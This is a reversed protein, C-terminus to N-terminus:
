DQRPSNAKERGLLIYLLLGVAAFLAGGPGIYLLGKHEAIIGGLLAGGGIGLNYLGSFMSMAVDTADSAENLVGVQMQLGFCMIAAGWVLVLGYFAWQELLTPMLALCLMLAVLTGVMLGRPFRQSLRSFLWSGILGAAGFLLLVLTIKNNALKVVQASFPEIYSFATFHAVVFLITMAYLLLLAPRKFLVPVNALSGSNQSPLTPLLWLLAQMTLAALTAVVSFPIRWGFASGAMRGLPIGLVMALVSGTALLALAQRAKNPPALRVVLAATISWFIAHATAVGLRAIVLVWYSWAVASLLHSVLFVWFINRLLSRREIDRTLLMIPLSQLAVAWAYITLIRGVEGVSMKFSKGIDTLLAVPVFETTNFVFAAFAMMIVPLWPNRTAPPPPAPDPNSASLNM